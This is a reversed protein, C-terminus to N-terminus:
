RPHLLAGGVGFGLTLVLTPRDRPVRPDLAAAHAALEADNLVLAALDDLGAEALIDAALTPDPKPIPYSCGGANLDDDLECPLALVAAAPRAGGLTERIATAVFAVVAAHFPVLAPAAVESAIPLATFDRTHHGRRSGWLVKVATQGVDAVV